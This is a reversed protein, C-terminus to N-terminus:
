ILWADETVEELGSRVNHQLSLKSHLRLSPLESYTIIPPYLSCTGQSVEDSAMWSKKTRDMNDNDESEYVTRRKATM